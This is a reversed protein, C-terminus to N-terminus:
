QRAGTELTISYEPSLGDAAKAVQERVARPLPAYGLKPAVEQGHTLGYEIFIEIAKAKLPDDYHEFPLLWTYTVVPYSNRGEPDRIFLRFDAPMESSSLSAATTEPTPAVFQGARNELTAMPLGNHTAYSYDLYGIAGEMQLIQNTAGENGKSGIFTGTSPWEVSKGVGVADNWRPSVQALHATFVATTGSGDARHVVAIPLDPLAVGPNDTAIAPDRWSGIEGLFIRAYTQRSLRLPASLGPLNYALVVCGATMPLLLAGNTANAVEEPTMAVDSAGFDVVGTMVQKVGAGSGMSQYNIRLEPMERYLSISWSQYLLAPFSAGAGILSVRTGLPSDESIPPACGLACLAM